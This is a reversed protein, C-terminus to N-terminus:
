HRYLSHPNYPTFLLPHNSLSPGGILSPPRLPGPGGSTGAPIDINLSARPPVPYQPQPTIMDPVRYRSHLHTRDSQPAVLPELKDRMKGVSFLRSDKETRSSSSHTGSDRNRSESLHFPLQNGQPDPQLKKHNLESTHETFHRGYESLHKALNDPLSRPLNEPLHEPLHRPLPKPLQSQKLLHESFPKPDPLHSPLHEPLQKTLHSDTLTKQPNPPTRSNCDSNAARPHESSTKSVDRPKTVDHASTM